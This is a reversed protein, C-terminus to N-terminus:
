ATVKILTAPHNTCGVLINWTATRVETSVKVDTFCCYDSLEVGTELLAAALETGAALKTRVAQVGTGNLRGESTNGAALALGRKAEWYLKNSSGTNGAAEAATVINRYRAYKPQVVQTYYEPNTNLHGNKYFPFESATKFTAM